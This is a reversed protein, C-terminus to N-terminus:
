RKEKEEKAGFCLIFSLMKRGEKGGERGGERGGGGDSLSWNGGL